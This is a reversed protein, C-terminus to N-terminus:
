PQEQPDAATVTSAPRQIHWEGVQRCLILGPTHNAMWRAQRETGTAVRRSHTARFGWETTTPMPPPCNCRVERIIQRVVPPPPPPPPPAPPPLEPEPCPGRHYTIGNLDLAALVARAQWMSDTEWNGAHTRTRDTISGPDRIATRILAAAALELRTTM